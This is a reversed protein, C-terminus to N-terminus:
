YLEHTEVVGESVKYFSLTKGDENFFIDYLINKTLYTGAASISSYPLIGDPGGCNNEAKWERFPLPERTTFEGGDRTWYLSYQNGTKNFMHFYYQAFTFDFCDSSASSLTKMAGINTFPCTNDPGWVALDHLSGSFTFADTDDYKGQMNLTRGGVNNANDIKGACYNDGQTTMFYVTAITATGEQRAAAGVSSIPIDALPGAPDKLDYIAKIEEKEFWAYKDGDMNFFLMVEEDLDVAAGIGHGDFIGKLATFPAPIESTPDDMPPDNSNDTDEKGCACFIIIVLIFLNLKEVYSEDGKAAMESMAILFDTM